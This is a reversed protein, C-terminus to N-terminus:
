LGKTPFFFRQGFVDEVEVFDGIVRDIARRIPDDPDDGIDDDTIICAIEEEEITEIEELLKEVMEARKEADEKESAMCLGVWTHHIPTFGNNPFDHAEFHAEEEDAGDTPGEASEKKAPGKSPYM